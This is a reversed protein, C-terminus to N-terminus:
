AKETRFIPEIDAPARSQLAEQEARNLPKFRSAIDLAMEYLKEDGPPIASTVDQTLTFRVAQEALKPDDTPQYWCKPHATNEQKTGEPWRGLAMAKLALRAIGKQRAYDLIQRGFNGKRWALFNVPFLVSDLPFSQMLQIAAAADHCSAGLYKVKGEDRAKLFLDGAGGPKAIEEVDKLSSVAHFQYLDFRDTHARKLSRELEERAGKEDRKGTKCALFVRNRYPKLAEGLKLEAEGDWYSPAVDYYNIGRDFSAAVTKNATAQDMGVVVIGGFGIVSIDVGPKYPRRPISRKAAAEAALAAQAAVSAKLFERREM